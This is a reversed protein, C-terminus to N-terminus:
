FDPSDGLDDGRTEAWTQSGWLPRPEVDPAYPEVCAAPVGCKLGGPGEDVMAIETTLAGDLVPAGMPGPAPQYGLLTAKRIALAGDRKDRVQVLSGIPLRTIPM